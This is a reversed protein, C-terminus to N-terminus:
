QQSKKSKGHASVPSPASCPANIATCGFGPVTCISACALGSPGAEDVASFSAFSDVADGLSTAGDCDPDYIPDTSVLAFEAFFKIADGLGTAGDNNVDYDCPNGYGDLDGDEQSNCDVTALLPGNPVDICNDDGDFVGDLDADENIGFIEMSNTTGEEEAVTTTTAVTVCATGNWTLTSLSEFSIVPGDFSPAGPVVSFPM